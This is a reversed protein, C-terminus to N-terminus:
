GIGVNNTNSNVFFTSTDVTLNYDGLVVNKSSGTYPIYDSLNLASVNLNTLGSGDGFFHSATVNYGFLANGTTGNVLFLTNGNSTINFNKASIMGFTGVLFFVLAFILFIRKGRLPEQSRREFRSPQNSM